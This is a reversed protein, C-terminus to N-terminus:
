LRSRRPTNLTGMIGNAQAHLQAKEQEIAALRLVQRMAEDRVSSANPGDDLFPQPNAGYAILLAATDRQQRQVALELPTTGPFPWPPHGNPAAGADLLVRAIGTLRQERVDPANCAYMLPTWGSSDTGNPDDGAALRARVAAEDLAQVALNLPLTLPRSPHLM